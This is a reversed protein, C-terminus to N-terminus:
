RKKRTETKLWARLDSPNQTSARRSPKAGAAQRQRPEPTTLREIESVPVLRTKGLLVTLVAGSDVLERMKTLGMGCLKAAAPVKFARQRGALQASLSENLKEFSLRLLRLEAEVRKLYESQSELVTATM